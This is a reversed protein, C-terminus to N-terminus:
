YSNSILFVCPATLRLLLHCVRFRWLVDVIRDREHHVMLVAQVAYFHDLPIRKVDLLVEVGGGDGGGRWDRRDRRGRWRHAHIYGRIHFSESDVTGIRARNFPSKYRGDQVEM